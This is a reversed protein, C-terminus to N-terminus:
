KLNINSKYVRLVIIGLMTPHQELYEKLPIDSINVGKQPSAHIIYAVDNIKKIIGMHEVDLQKKSTVFAIIDGDLLKSYNLTSPPIYYFGDASLNKEIIKLYSKLSDPANNSIYSLEKKIGVGDLYETYDSAVERKELNRKWELFYHIRSGYGRNVGNRYRIRILIEKHLNYNGYESTSALAISVTNEVLTWCDLSDIRTTLSDDRLIKSNYPTGIFSEAVAVLKDNFNEQQKAAIIKEEIAKVNEDIQPEIINNEVTHLLVIPVSLVLVAKILYFIRAM